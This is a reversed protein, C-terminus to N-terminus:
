QKPKEKFREQLIWAQFEKKKDHEQKTEPEPRPVRIVICRGQDDKTWLFSFLAKIVARLKKM